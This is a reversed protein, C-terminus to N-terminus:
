PQLVEQQFSEVPTVAQRLVNGLLSTALIRSGAIGVTPSMVFCDKALLLLQRSAEESGAIEAAACLSELCNMIARDFKLAAQRVPHTHLPFEMVARISLGARIEPDSMGFCLINFAAELQELAPLNTHMTHSRLNGLLLTQAEQLVACILGYKGQFHHYITMKATCCEATLRDIGTALGEAFFLRSAIQLIHNQTASKM